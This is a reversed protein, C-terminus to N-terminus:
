VWARKDGLDTSKGVRDQWVRRQLGHPKPETEGQGGRTEPRVGTSGEDKRDKIKPAATALSGMAQLIRPTYPQSNSATSGLPGPHNRLEKLAM